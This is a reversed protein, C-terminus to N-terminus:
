GPLLHAVVVPQKARAAYTSGHVPVIWQHPGAVVSVAGVTSPAIGVVEFRVGASHPMGSGIAIGHSVVFALHACALAKTDSRIICVLNQVSIAWIAGSSTRVRQALRPSRVGSGLDHALQLRLYRPLRESKSHMFLFSRDFEQRLGAIRAGSKKHVHRQNTSGDNGIVFALIVAAINLVPSIFPRTAV